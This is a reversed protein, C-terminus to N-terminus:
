TSPILHGTIRLNYFHINKSPDSGFCGLSLSIDDGYLIGSDHHVAEGNIFLAAAGRDYIFRLQFRPGGVIDDSLDPHLLSKLIKHGGVYAGGARSWTLSFRTHTAWSYSDGFGISDRYGFPTVTGWFYLLGHSREPPMWVDATLEISGGRVLIAKSEHRGEAIPDRPCALSEREFLPYRDFLPRVSRQPAVGRAIEDLWANVMPQAETATLLSDLRRIEPRASAAMGVVRGATTAVPGGGNGADLVPALVPPQGPELLWALLPTATPASRCEVARGGPSSTADYGIAVLDTAQALGEATGWRVPIHGDGEVKILALDQGAHGVVFEANATYGRPSTVVFTAADLALHWPIVAYGSATVFFGTGCAHDTRVRLVSLEVFRAVDDPTAGYPGRRSELGLELQDGVELPAEPGFALYQQWARHPYRRDRLTDGLLRLKVPADASEPHYELVAAQFYQRIRGDPPRGPIHLDAEDHDDARADTKPFGFSAVGGLRHFFDAFGIEVGEVSLNAVKHGWPGLLEGSNPNTLHAEVGQDISGGLGGGLYDWALRRLFIPAGGGPPSQWDIVGRQYYQTLTGPTEEVVASTPYGWREVGGTRNYNALFNARFATGDLFTGAVDVAHHQLEEFFHAGAVEASAFGSEAGHANPPAAMVLAAVVLLAVM